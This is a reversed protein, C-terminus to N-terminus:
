KVFKTAKGNIAILYIGKELSRSYTGSVTTRDVLKGSITYLEVLSSNELDVEIGDDTYRIQVDTAGNEQLSSVLTAFHAIEDEIFPATTKRVVVSSAGDTEYNEGVGAPETTYYKYEVDGRIKNEANTLTTHFIANSSKLTGKTMETSATFNDLSTKVFLNEPTTELGAAFTARLTVSPVNVWVPVNDPTGALYTRNAGAVLAGNDFEGEAYDVDKGNLYKYTTISLAPFTGTFENENATATLKYPDAVDMDKELFDGVVYVDATGNPVTVTYTKTPLAAQYAGAYTFKANRDAGVIDKSITSVYPVGLDEDGVSAGALSLDSESTFVVSKYKSNVDKGVNGAKYADFDLFDGAIRANTTGAKMYYVNNNITGTSVSGYFRNTVADENTVFINNTIPPNASSLTIAQYYGPSSTDTLKPLYFTNHSIHGTGSFFLYTLNLIAAAPKLKDMGAFVNNYINYTAGSACSITRLGWTGSASAENTTSQLFQNNYVDFVGALGLYFWLGYNITGATGSQILRITNGSIEGGNTYQIWLVRGAAEVINNKIVLGQIKSTTLTGSNAGIIGQGTGSAKSLLTNNEITVNSAAVEIATGKRPVIAICTASAGWSKSEIISNKIVTNTSGGLVVIIRSGVLAGSATTFKLRKTSGGEAYGDITVNNTAITNADSWATTLDTYGIVFHGSPSTNDTAKTFTITRDVDADPRITVSHGNTNVGFGINAAETIDSTIELVVDGGVGKTNLDAIAASLSTYDGGSATGVKYTGSLAQASLGMSAFLALILFTTKKM